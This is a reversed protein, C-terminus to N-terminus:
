KKKKKKQSIIGAASLAALDAAGLAAAKHAKSTKTQAKTGNNNESKIKLAKQNAKVLDKDSIVLSDGSDILVTVSGDSNVTIADDDVRTVTGNKSIRFLKIKSKSIGNLSSPKLRVQLTVGFSGSGWPTIVVANTPVYAGGNVTVMQDMKTINLGVNLSGNIGTIMAPDIVMSYGLSGGSAPAVQITVPIGGSVIAAVTDERITVSGSSNASMQVTATGNGSAIAAEIASTVTEATLIVPSAEPLKDEANNKINSSGGHVSTDPKSNNVTGGGYNAAGVSAATMSAAAAFSFIMAATKISIKKMNM